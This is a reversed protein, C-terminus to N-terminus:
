YPNKPVVMKKDKFPIIARIDLNECRFNSRLSYPASDGFTYGGDVASHLGPGTCYGYLAFGDADKVDELTFRTIDRLEEPLNPKRLLIDCRLEREIIRFNKAILATYHGFGPQLSGYRKEMVLSRITANEKVQECDQAVKTSITLKAHNPLPHWPQDLEWITVNDIVDYLQSAVDPQSKGITTEPPTIAARAATLPALTLGALTQIFTRRKM